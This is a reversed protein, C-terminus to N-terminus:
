ARVTSDSPLTITKSAKFRRGKAGQDWSLGANIRAQIADTDDTVGNGVPFPLYDYGLYKLCDIVNSSCMVVPEIPSAKNQQNEQEEM